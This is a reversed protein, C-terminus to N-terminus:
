KGVAIQKLRKDERKREAQKLKETIISVPQLMSVHSVDILRLSPKPCPSTQDIFVILSSSPFLASRYLRCREIRRGHALSGHLPYLLM